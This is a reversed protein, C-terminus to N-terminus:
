CFPPWLACREINVATLRYMTDHYNDQYNVRQWSCVFFKVSLNLRRRTSPLLLIAITHLERKQLSNFFNSLLKVDEDLVGVGMEAKSAECTRGCNMEIREFTGLCHTYVNLWIVQNHMIRCCFSTHSPPLHLLLPLPDILPSIILTVLHSCQWSSKKM